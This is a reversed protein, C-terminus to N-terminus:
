VAGHLPTPITFPSIALKLCMDAIASWALYLWGFFAVTGVAWLSYLEPLPPERHIFHFSANASAILLPIMIRYFFRFPEDCIREVICRIVLFSFLLGFTSVFLVSHQSYFQHNAFVWLAAAIYSVTLPTLQSLAFLTPIGKRKAKGLSNRISVFAGYISGVFFLIMMIVKPSLQFGFISFLNESWWPRGVFFTFWHITSLAVEAEVPGNLAGLVLSHTFYEEWHALYFTFACLAFFALMVDGSVGITLAAMITGLAVCLSDCGHDVLEGVPTATKTRRAQKGDMNDLMMNAFIM